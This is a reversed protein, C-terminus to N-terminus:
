LQEPFRSLGNRIRRLRLWSLRRRWPWINIDVTGYRRKWPPVAWLLALGALASGAIGFFIGAVFARQSARKAAAQSTVFLITSALRTASQTYSPAPDQNTGDPRALQDGTASWTRAIIPATTNCPEGLNDVTLPLPTTCRVEIVPLSVRKDGGSETTFMKVKMDYGVQYTGDDGPMGEPQVLSYSVGASHRVLKEPGNSDDVPLLM